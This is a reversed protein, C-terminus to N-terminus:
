GWVEMEAINGWGGNPSLYRVYRYTGPPTVSIWQMGDAPATGITYLDVVGTSFTSSNSVQFKGGVMRSGLGTRPAFRIVSISKQSGLNLGVWNGNGNTSQNSNYFTNLNGDFAMAYGYNAADNNWSGGAGIATGTLKAAATKTFKVMDMNYGGTDEVLRMWQLGASLYVKTVTVDTWTDWGGTSGVTINPTRSVGAGGVQGVPGFELHATGGSGASAMRLAISYVGAQAVNITYGLWEGAATWGIAVNNAWSDNTYSLDVSTNRYAGGYNQTDTDNYAYGQGGLDFNAPSVFTTGTAAITPTTYPAVGAVRAFTLSQINYGGTEEFLRFTHTGVPLENVRVTVISWTDWGGTGSVTFRALVNGAQDELRFTGGSAGSAVRATVDYRGAQAVNVTYKLWENAATWGVSANGAGGDTTYSIDVDSGRYAGGNNGADTDFYSVGQGANDFNKAYLVSSGSAAIPFAGAAYPVPAFSTPTNPVLKIITMADNVTFSAQNGSLTIGSTAYNGTGDFNYLTAGALVGNATLTVGVPAPTIETNNSSNWNQVDNWMMLYYGDSKQTLLYKVTGPASLTFDLPTGAFSSRAWSKSAPDWSNDNLLGLLKSIANGSSRLSGDESNVLGFQETSSHFLTYIFSRSYGDLYQDAIGRLSYKALVTSPLGAGFFNNDGAYGYETAMFPKNPTVSLAASKYYVGNSPDVGPHDGNYRYPHIDGYDAYGLNTIRSDTLPANSSGFSPAIVPINRGSVGLQPDNKFLNYLAQQFARAGELGFVGDYEFGYNNTTDIENDGTVASLATGFSHARNIVNNAWLQPSNLLVQDFIAGQNGTTSSTALSVTVQGNTIVVNNLRVLQWGGFGGNSSGPVNVSVTSGGFGSATLTTSAAGLPNVWLSINYTGNACGMITQSTSVSYPATSYHVLGYNNAARLNSSGYPPAPVNWFTSAYSAATNGGVTWKSLNGTEFGSNYDAAASNGNFQYYQRLDWGSSVILTNGVGLNNSVDVNTQIGDNTYYPQLGDRINRIGMRQLASQVATSSGNSTSEWLNSVHTSVGVSNVVTDAWVPTVVAPVERGELAECGLRTSRRPLPKPRFLNAVWRTFANPTSTRPSLAM